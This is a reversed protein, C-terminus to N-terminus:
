QQMAYKDAEVKYPAAVFYAISDKGCFVDFAVRKTQLLVNCIKDLRATAMLQYDRADPNMDEVQDARFHDGIVEAQRPVDVRGEVMEGEEGEVLGEMHSEGIASPRHLKIVSRVIEAAVQTIVIDCDRIKLMKELFADSMNIEHASPNDPKSSIAERVAQLYPEPDAAVTDVDDNAPPAFKRDRAYLGDALKDLDFTSLPYAYPGFLYPPMGAVNANAAAPSPPMAQGAPLTLLRPDITGSGDLPTNNSSM